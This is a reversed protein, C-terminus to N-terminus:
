EIELHDVDKIYKQLDENSKFSQMWYVNYSVQHDVTKMDAYKLQFVTFSISENTPALGGTGFKVNSLDYVFVHTGDSLKLDSSYKNNGGGLAKYQTGSESTGVVDFNINRSTIGEGLDKVDQMRVAIIPYNGAHLTVPTDWWKLDGRSTTANQKYTTVTIYGDHWVHSSSTGNGSQSANYFSYHDPNHYTERILGCPINLDISSSQGDPTSATITVTGFGKYTVVGDKVTAVSEDSSTWNLLSTTCEAPVTTYALKLSQENLACAYGNASSYTQDLTVQEPTVIKKVNITKEGVVGSGDLATAIVKVQTLITEAQKATFLGSIPDISAAEENSVSWSVTKYTSNDPLIEASMQLQDGAYLEDADSTVTISEAKRMESSVVVKLNATIGSGSFLGVPSVEVISYGDGDVAQVLGNDSVTAYNANSSSWVVDRFTITDPTMTYELQLSEGKVMPLCRSGTADTYLLKQQAEPLNFQVSSPIVASYLNGGKDDDSCSSLTATTALGAMLM